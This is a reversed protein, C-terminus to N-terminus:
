GVGCFGLNVRLPFSPPEPSPKPAPPPVTPDLAGTIQHHADELHLRTPRDLRTDTLAERIDRDLTNLEGRVYARIGPSHHLRETM